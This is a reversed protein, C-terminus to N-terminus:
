EGYSNFLLFLLIPIEFIFLLDWYSILQRFLVKFPRIGQGMTIDALSLYNSFYRNYWLNAFFFSTFLLYFFFSIYIRKKDKLFFNVTVFSFLLVLINKSILIYILNVQFIHQNFYNYKILFGLLFLGFIIKKKFSLKNFYRL